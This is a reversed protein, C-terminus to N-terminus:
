PTIAFDIQLVQQIKENGVIQKLINRLVVAISRYYRDIFSYNQENHTNRKCTLAFDATLITTITRKSMEM